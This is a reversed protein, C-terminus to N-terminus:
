HYRDPPYWPDRHRGADDDQGADSGLRPRRPGPGRGGGSGRPPLRWSDWPRREQRCRGRMCLQILGLGGVFGGIHSFFAVGGGEAGLSGIGGLLNWLFWTGIALWAPFMLFPGFFLWLPLFTNLVMIPVRPYLVLYAGLVGAIAGSAGVMPVQSAPDVVVQALAAAVGCALYFAAYRGHGISEEVNDGFIYLYLMNGGLHMWGGHMFMSTLITFAEGSPDGTLRIPVLGYGPEVWAVGTAQLALQWLWALVNAAILLYNVVPASRTPNLDRVPVFV